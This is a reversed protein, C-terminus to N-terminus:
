APCKRPRTSLSPSHHCFISPSAGAKQNCGIPERGTVQSRVLPGSLRAHAGLPLLAAHGNTNFWTNPSGMLDRTSTAIVEGSYAPPNISDPSVSAHVHVPSIQLSSCGGLLSRLNPQPGPGCPDYLSSRSRTNARPRIAGDSRPGHLLILTFSPNIRISTTRPDLHQRRNTVVTIFRGPLDACAVDPNWPVRATRISCGQECPDGALM